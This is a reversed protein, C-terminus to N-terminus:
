RIASAISPLSGKIQKLLNLQSRETIFRTLKQQPLNRKRLLALKAAPGLKNFSPKPCFSKTEHCLAPNDTKTRKSAEKVGIAFTDSSFYFTSSHTFDENANKTFVARAAGWLARLESLRNAGAFTSEFVSSTLIALNGPSSYGKLHLFPLTEYLTTWSFRDNIRFRRILPIWLLWGPPHATSIHFAYQWLSSLNDYTSQGLSRNRLM